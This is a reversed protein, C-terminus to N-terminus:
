KCRASEARYRRVSVCKQVDLFGVIIVSFIAAAVTCFKTARTISLHAGRTKGKHFYLSVFFKRNFSLPVM